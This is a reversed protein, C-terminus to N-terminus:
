MNNPYNEFLDLGFSVLREASRIARLILSLSQNMTSHCLVEKEASNHKVVKSTVNCHLVAEQSFRLISFQPTKGPLSYLLNRHLSLLLSSLVCSHGLEYM